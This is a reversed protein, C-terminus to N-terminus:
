QVFSCIRWGADERRLLAQARRPSSFGPVRIAYYIALQGNDRPYPFTDDVYASFSDANVPAGPDLVTAVNSCVFRRARATDDEDYAALYERVVDAPSWLFRDALPELTNGLAWAGVVVGVLAVIIILCGILGCGRQRLSSRESV